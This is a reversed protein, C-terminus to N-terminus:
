HSNVVGGRTPLGAHVVRLGHENNILLLQGCVRMFALGSEVAM